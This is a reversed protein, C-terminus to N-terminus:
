SPRRGDDDEDYMDDGSFNSNKVSSTLNTTEITLNHLNSLSRSHLLRKGPRSSNVNGDVAIEKEKCRGNGKGITSRKM